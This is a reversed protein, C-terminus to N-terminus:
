IDLLEERSVTAPRRIQVSRIGVEECAKGKNRVYTVSAPDEGVLIVALGPRRGRKAALAQTEAQVERRIAGAIAKGDVVQAAM